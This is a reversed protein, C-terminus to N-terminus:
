PLATTGTAQKGKPVPEATVRMERAIAEILFRDNCDSSTARLYCDEPVPGEENLGYGDPGHHPAQKGRSISGLRTLTLVLPAALPTAKGSQDGPNGSDDPMVRAPDDHEGATSALRALALRAPQALTIIPWFMVDPYAQFAGEHWQWSLVRAIPSAAPPISLSSGRPLSAELGSQPNYFFAGSEFGPTPEDEFAQAGWQAEAGVLHLCGAGACDPAHRWSLLVIVDRPLRLADLPYILELRQAKLRGDVGKTQVLASVLTGGAMMGEAVLSAEGRVNSVLAGLPQKLPVESCGTRTCLSLAKLADVSMPREDLNAAYVQARAQRVIGYGRVECVERLLAAADRPPPAPLAALQRRVIERDEQSPCIGAKAAQSLLAENAMDQYGGPMNEAGAGESAAGATVPM